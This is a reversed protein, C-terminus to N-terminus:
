SKLVSICKGPDKAVILFTFICIKQVSIGLLSSFFLVILDSDEGVIVVDNADSYQLGTTVIMADADDEATETQIGRKILYSSLRKIFLVKNHRNSLFDEQSGFVKMDDQFNVDM